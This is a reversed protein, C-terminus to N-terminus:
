HVAWLLSCCARFKATSSKLTMSCAPVNKCLSHGSTLCSNWKKGFILGHGVAEAEWVKPNNAHSEKKCSDSDTPRTVSLATNLLNGVIPFIMGPGVPPASWPESEYLDGILGTKWSFDSRALIHPRSFHSLLRSHTNAGRRCNFCM